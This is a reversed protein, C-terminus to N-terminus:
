HFMTMLNVKLAITSLINIFMIVVVGQFIVYEIGFCYGWPLLFIFIIPTYVLIGMMKDQMLVNLQKM